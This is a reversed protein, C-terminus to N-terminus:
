KIRSAETALTWLRGDTPKMPRVAARAGGADGFMENRVITGAGYVIAFYGASPALDTRYSNAEATASNLYAGSGSGAPGPRFAGAPLWVSNHVFQTNPNDVYVLPWAKGTTRGAAEGRFQNDEVLVAGRGPRVQVLPARRGSMDGFVSNGVFRLDSAGDAQWGLFLTKRNMRLTCGTMVGGPVDFIVGYHRPNATDSEILCGEVSVRESFRKGKPNKAAVFGSGWNGVMRCRRFTIDGTLIDSRPESDPTGNPEIDVGAAPAHSGYAGRTGRADIYGTYSFACDEFLGGRLQIVSLGQRANFLFQSNRVTFRRSASQKGTFDRRVSAGIYLGDAAFHRATVGEIRVDSCGQFHLGHSRPEGLKPDRSTRDVNGILEINRLVVNRCERFQLGALSRTTPQDRRLDGKVTIKAGNGEITLGDCGEFALNAVGNASTVYRNLLYTRGPALAVTGGGASNVAAVMRKLADYDDTTGDGRAGFAEPTFNGGVAGASCSAPVALGTAFVGVLERRSLHLPGITMTPGYNPGTM